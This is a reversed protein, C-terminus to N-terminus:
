KFITGSSIKERSCKASDAHRQLVDEIYQKKSTLSSLPSWDRGQGFLHRDYNMINIRDKLDLYAYFLACQDSFWLPRKGFRADNLIHSIYDRLYQAFIVGGPSNRLINAGAPIVSWPMNIVAVGRKMIRSKIIVDAHPIEDWIDSISHEVAGDIDSILMDDYLALYEIAHLLRACAYYGQKDRPCLQSLNIKDITFGISDNFPINERERPDFGVCHFHIGRDPNTVNHIAIFDRSFRDYYEFNVSVITVRKRSSPKIELPWHHRSPSPRNPLVAKAAALPPILELKESFRVIKERAEQFEGISNQLIASFLNARDPDNPWYKRIFIIFDQIVAFFNVFDSGEIFTKRNLRYASLFYLDALHSPLKCIPAKDRIAVSLREWDSLFFMLWCFEVIAEPSKLGKHGDNQISKALESYFQGKVSKKALFIVRADHSKFRPVEHMISTTAMYRGIMAELRQDLSTFWRELM